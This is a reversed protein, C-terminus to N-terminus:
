RTKKADIIAEPKNYYNKTKWSTNTKSDIIKQAEVIDEGDSVSIVKANSLSISNWDAPKNFIFEEEGPYLGNLYAM